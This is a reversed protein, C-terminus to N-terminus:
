LARDLFHGAKAPQPQPPTGERIVIDGPALEAQSLAQSLDNAGARLLSATQPREAWMRVSTRDGILSILAHVPGAPEVDLSIKDRVKRVESADLRASRNRTLCGRRISDGERSDQIGPAAFPRRVVASEIGVTVAAEILYVRGVYVFERELPVKGNVQRGADLYRIRVDGFRFALDILGHRVPEFFAREDVRELALVNGLGVHLIKRRIYAFQHRQVLPPPNLPLFFSHSVTLCDILIETTGANPGALWSRYIRCATTSAILVSRGDHAVCMGNPFYFSKILKHTKGANWLAPDYEVPDFGVTLVLDAADIM